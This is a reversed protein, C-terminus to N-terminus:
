GIVGAGVCERHVGGYKPSCKLARYRFFNLNQGASRSLRLISRLETRVLVNTEWLIFPFIFYYKEDNRRM